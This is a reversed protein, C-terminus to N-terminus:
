EDILNLSKGFVLKMPENGYFGFIQGKEYMYKLATLSTEEEKWQGELGFCSCHSGYVIFLKEAREFIVTADGCYDGINYFAFLINIDNELKVDFDREVDERNNFDGFYIDKNM